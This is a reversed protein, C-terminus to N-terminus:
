LYAFCRRSNRYWTFMSNIASGLEVNNTKDICCTDVWAYKLGAMEAQEVCFEIKRYGAKIQAIGGIIDQFTVEENDWTHSLIAYPPIESSPYFPGALAINGDEDRHLLRM